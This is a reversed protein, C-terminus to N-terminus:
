DIFGFKIYHNLLQENNFMKLDDYFNRYFFFDLKNM